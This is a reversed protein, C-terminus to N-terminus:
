GRWADVVKQAAKAVEEPMAAIVADRAKQFFFRGKIGRRGISRALVFLSGTFGHRRAWGELAAPPPMRAGPTRGYEMVSAYGLTSYVRATTPHVDSLISRALASTDKPANERAAREGLLALSTLLESKSLIPPTETKQRSRMSARSRFPSAPCRPSGTGVTSLERVAHLRHVIWVGVFSSPM